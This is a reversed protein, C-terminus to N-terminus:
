VTSYGMDGFAVISPKDEPRDQKFFSYALACSTTEHIIRICNLNAIKAADLIAMRESDPAKTPVNIVVDIVKTKLNMEAVEKSKTLQMAYVQEASLDHNEGLYNVVFGVRQEDAEVMNCLQRKTENIIM